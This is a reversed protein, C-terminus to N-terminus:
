NVIKYVYGMEKCYDMADGYALTPSDAWGSNITTCDNDEYCYLIWHYPHNKNTNDSTVTTEIVYRKNM